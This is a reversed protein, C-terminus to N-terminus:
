STIARLGRVLRGLGERVTAADLAGYSVRLRCGGTLGFAEGPVVAVGHDRVLREAVTMSGLGTKVDILVYFAGGADPADCLAAVDAFREYVAHRVEGLRAVHADCYSRGVGLAALAARQAVRTPCILITDQIKSVAEVLHSPLVMYGIRWSAMGYSKSLSFISITHAAATELSGPSFHRAGDYVFYEYAEDHIHYLGRAACLANIDRLVPEAYVAGSPNNPSVTVIARTRPTIADAIRSPVPQYQADTAVPVPRCGAMEVAMEHNFYYPVQLIVEDGPDVVALVANFFAMNAGATVVVSSSAGLHIGNDAALKRSLADVLDADGEVPGYLHSAPDGGFHRAAELAAAPPGYSVVGQGLSIAGPTERLWRGLIPIVPAQVGRMRMSETMARIM